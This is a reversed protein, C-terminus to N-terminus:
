KITKSSKLIRNRDDVWIVYLTDGKKINGKHLFKFLKPKGINASLTADFIIKKNVVAYVHTIFHKSFCDSTSLTDKILLKTKLTGNKVKAKIKASGSKISSIDLTDINLKQVIDNKAIVCRVYRDNAKGIYSKSGAHWYVGWVKNPKVKYVDSSWYHRAFFGKDKYCQQYRANGINANAETSQIDDTLFGGCQRVENLLIDLSPLKGFSKACITQAIDWSSSCGDDKVEGGNNICITRTPTIWKTSSTPQPNQVRDSYVVKEVVKVERGVFKGSLSLPPPISKTFVEPVQAGDTKQGVTYSIDNALTVLPVNSALKSLVVKNFVRNDRATKNKSTSYIILSSSPRQKVQGLGKVGGMTGTPVNRCADLFLVNAKTNASAMRKAINEVKIADIEIDSQSRTDVDVPILYSEGYAQAGHGSYYFLGIAGSNRLLKTKFAKMTKKMSRRDLDYKEVVTFGMSRLKKALAPIDQCPSSLVDIYKYNSNGILLALKPEAYLMSWLSVILIVIKM